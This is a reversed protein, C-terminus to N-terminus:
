NIQVLLINILKMSVRFCGGPQDLEPVAFECLSSDKYPDIILYNQM